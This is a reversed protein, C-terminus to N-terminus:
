NAPNAHSQRWDHGHTQVWTFAVWKEETKHWPQGASHFPELPFINDDALKFPM